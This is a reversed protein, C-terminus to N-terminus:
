SVFICTYKVKWSRNQMHQLMFYLVSPLSFKKVCISQISHLSNLFISAKTFFSYVSSTANTNQVMSPAISSLSLRVHGEMNQVTCFYTYIYRIALTCINLKIRNCFSGIEFQGMHYLYQLVLLSELIYSTIDDKQTENGM